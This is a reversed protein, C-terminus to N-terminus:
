KNEKKCTDCLYHKWKLRQRDCADTICALCNTVDETGVRVTEPGIGNHVRVCLGHPHKIKSWDWDM